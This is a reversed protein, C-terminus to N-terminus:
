VKANCRLLADLKFDVDPHYRVVLVMMDLKELVLGM